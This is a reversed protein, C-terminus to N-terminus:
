LIPDQVKNIVVIVFLKVISLAVQRSQSINYQVYDDSKIGFNERLVEKGGALELHTRHFM